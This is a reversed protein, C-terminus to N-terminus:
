RSANENWGKDFYMRFLKMMAISETATFIRTAKMAAYASTLVCMRPFFMKRTIMRNMVNNGPIVM